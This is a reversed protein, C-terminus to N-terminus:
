TWFSRLGRNLHGSEFLHSFVSSIINDIHSNRTRDINALSWSEIKMHGSCMFLGFAHLFGYFYKYELVCQTCNATFIKGFLVLWHQVMWHFYIFLGFILSFSLSLSFHMKLLIVGGDYDCNCVYGLRLVNLDTICTFSLLLFAFTFTQLTKKQIQESRLKLEITHIQPMLDRIFDIM